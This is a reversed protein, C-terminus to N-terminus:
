AWEVKECLIMESPRLLRQRRNIPYDKRLAHGVFEDHCLIRRLNPHDDFRIGFLDWVEREMWNAVGWLDWVSPVSIGDDTVAVKIRIRHNKALSYLQYVVEFRWERDDDGPYGLYDVAGVDMLWSFDLERDDRLWILVERLSEPRITLAHQGAFAYTSLIKEGFKAQLREVIQAEDM